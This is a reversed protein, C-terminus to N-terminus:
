GSMLSALVDAKFRLLVTLDMRTVAYPDAGLRELEVRLREETLRETAEDM